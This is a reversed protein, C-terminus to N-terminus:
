VPLEVQLRKGLERTKEVLAKGLPIGQEMRHMQTAHELYGPYIVKEFGRAPRLAMIRSLEEDMRSKFTKAPMFSDIKIALMFNGNGSEREQNSLVSLVRGGFDAGSFVGSLIDTLIAIASGKM